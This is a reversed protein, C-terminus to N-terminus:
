IKGKGSIKLSWLFLIIIKGWFVFILRNFGNRLGPLLVDCNLEDMKLCDNSKLESIMRYKGSM